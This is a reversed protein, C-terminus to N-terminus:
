AKMKIMYSKWSLEVYVLWDAISVILVNVFDRVAKKLTNVSVIKITSSQTLVSPVKSCIIYRLVRQVEIRSSIRFNSGGLYAGM